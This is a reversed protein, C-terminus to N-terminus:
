STSKKAIEAVDALDQRFAIQYRAQEQALRELDTSLEALQHTVETGVQAIRAELEKSAQTMEDLRTSHTAARTVVDNLKGGVDELQRRLEAIDNTLKETQERRRSFRGM